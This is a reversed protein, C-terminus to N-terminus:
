HLGTATYRTIPFHGGCLCEWLAIVIPQYIVFSAAHGIAAKYVQNGAFGRNNHRAVFLKTEVNWNLKKACRSKECKKLPLHPHIANAERKQNTQKGKTQRDGASARLPGSSLDAARHLIRTTSNQRADFDRRRLRR